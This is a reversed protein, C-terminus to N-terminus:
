LRRKAFEYVYVTLLGMTLFSFYSEFPIFAIKLAITQSLPYNYISFYHIPVFLILFFILAFLYSRYFQSMFRIPNKYEVYFLSLLMLSFTIVTLGKSYAFFIMAISLGMLVNSISLSYKDTKKLDQNQNLHCYLLLFSYPLMLCLLIQEIPIGMVVIGSLYNSDFMLIGSVVFLYSLLVNFLGAIAISTFFPRANGFLNTRKLYFALSLTAAFILTLLLYNM